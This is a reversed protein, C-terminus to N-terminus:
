GNEGDTVERWQPSSIQIELKIKRVFEIDAESWAKLTKYQDWPDDTERSVLHWDEDPIQSNPVIQRINSYVMPDANCYKFLNNPRVMEWSLHYIKGDM